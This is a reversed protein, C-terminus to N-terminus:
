RALGPLNITQTTSSRRKNTHLFGFTIVIPSTLSEVPVCILSKGLGLEVSVQGNHM